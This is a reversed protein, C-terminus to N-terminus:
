KRRGGISRGSVGFVVGAGADTTRGYLVNSWSVAGQWEQSIQYMRRSGQWFQRVEPAKKLWENVPITQWGAGYIAAEEYNTYHYISPQDWKIRSSSVVAEENVPLSGTAEAYTHVKGVDTQAARLASTSRTVLQCRIVWSYTWFSEVGRLRLDLYDLMPQNGAISVRYASAEAHQIADEIGELITANAASANFYGHTMLPRDLDVKVLEFVANDKEVQEANVSQGGESPFTATIIAPTGETSEISEPSLTDLIEQEKAASLARPGHWTRVTQWGAALSYKRQKPQEIFANTGLVTQAM